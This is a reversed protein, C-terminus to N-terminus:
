LICSDPSSRHQIWQALSLSLFAGDEAAPSDERNVATEQEQAVSSAGRASESCGSLTQIFTPDSLVRVVASAVRICLQNLSESPANRTTVIATNLLLFCERLFVVPHDQHTELMQLVHRIPLQGHFIMAYRRILLRLCRMCTVRWMDDQEVSLRDSLHWALVLPEVVEYSNSLDAVQPILYEIFYGNVLLERDISQYNVYFMEHDWKPASELLKQSPGHKMKELTEIEAKLAHRLESRM